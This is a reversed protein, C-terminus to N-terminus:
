PPSERFSRVAFASGKRWVRTPAMPVTPGRPAMEVPQATWAADVIAGHLLGATATANSFVVSAFGALPLSVCGPSLCAAPAEAIWEASGTELTSATVKTSFSAGTSTNRLALEVAKGLVTLKASVIDGPRIALPVDVPPEPFLQYWASHSLVANEGCEASTGIQELARSDREAGGIGVWFAVFSEPRNCVVRPEVWTGGVETFAEGDARVIYGAWGPSAFMPLIQLSTAGATAAPISIV